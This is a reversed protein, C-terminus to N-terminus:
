HTGAEYAFHVDEFLVQGQIEPMPQADAANTLTVPEDLLNFIREAGALSSQLQVWLQAIQQVPFFFRRVYEIFSVVIGVSIVGTLALRPLSLWRVWMPMETVGTSILLANPMPRPATSPKPWKLV